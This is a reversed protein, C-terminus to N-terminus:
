KKLLTTEQNHRWLTYKFQIFLLKSFTAAIISYAM